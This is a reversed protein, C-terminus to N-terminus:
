ATRLQNLDESIKDLNESLIILETIPAKTTIAKNLKEIDANLYAILEYAKAKQSSTIKDFLKELEQHDKNWYKDVALNTLFSRSAQDAIDALRLHMTQLSANISLYESLRPAEGEETVEHWVELIFFNGNLTVTQRLYDLISWHSHVILWCVDGPQINRYSDVSM